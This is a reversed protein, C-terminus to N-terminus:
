SFGGSEQVPATFIATTTYEKDATLAYYGAAFLAAASVLAILIKYAWLTRFLEGLDIEDADMSDSTNM